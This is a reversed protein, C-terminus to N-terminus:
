EIAHFFKSYIGLSNECEFVSELKNENLFIIGLEFM